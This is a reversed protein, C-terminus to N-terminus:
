ALRGPAESGILAVTPMPAEGSLWPFQDEFGMDADYFLHDYHSPDFDLPLEPWFQDQSIGLQLLQRTIAEIVGHPRHLILARQGVFNPTLEFSRM